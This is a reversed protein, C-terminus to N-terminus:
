GFKHTTLIGVKETQEPQDPQGPEEKVAWEEGTTDAAVPRQLLAGARGPTTAAADHVAFLMCRGYM